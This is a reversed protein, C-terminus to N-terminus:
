EFLKESSNKIHRGAILLYFINREFEDYLIRSFITAFNNSIFTFAICGYIQKESFLHIEYYLWLIICM